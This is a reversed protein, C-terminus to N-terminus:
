ASRQPLAALVPRGLHAAFWDEALEAAATLTDPETFLHSAGPVVALGCEGHLMDTALRCARLAEHDRGGVVFLVPARVRALKEHDALEPRGSRAVVSLVDADPYSAAELAAAAGSGAGFYALPLAAEHRLWLSAEHLRRSLLGVDLVAGREREEKETLLDLLLTGIGSRNLAAALFQNRPNNRGSSGALAFVVVMEAADPVSLHGALLEGTTPVSVERNPRAPEFAVTLRPAPAAHTAQGLLTLVEADTTQAFDDYWGGISGLHHLAQQCYLDDVLPRLRDVASMPAVPTVLVVEVAGRRRAAACAAEATAGTALGDDVLVALRGTLPVPARTAHYRRVQAELEPREAKEVASRTVSPLGTRLIVEENLVRVGNESIAGFGLEPQWPVCLKRVALVDLPAGLDQAVEYAVPVGGRSLGLVVSHRGRLFQLHWTLRRGAARRDDFRM